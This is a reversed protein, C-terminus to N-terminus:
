LAVERAHERVFLAVAASRLWALGERSIEYLPRAQTLDPPVEVTRVHKVNWRTVKLM